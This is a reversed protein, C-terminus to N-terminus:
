SCWVLVQLFSTKRYYITRCITMLKVLGSCSCAPVGHDSTICFRFRCVERVRATKVLAQSFPLVRLRVCVASGGFFLLVPLCVADYPQHMACTLPPHPNLRLGMSVPVPTHIHSFCLPGLSSLFVEFTRTFWRGLDVTGLQNISPVVSQQLIRLRHSLM